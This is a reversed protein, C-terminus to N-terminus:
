PKSHIRVFISSAGGEATSVRVRIYKANTTFDDLFGLQAITKAVTFGQWTTKDFSLQVTCVHTTNGGTNAAIDVALNKNGQLDLAETVETDDNGDLTEFLDRFQLDRPM